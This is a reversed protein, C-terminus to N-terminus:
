LSAGEYLKIENVVKGNELKYFRQNTTPSTLPGFEEKWSGIKVWDLNKLVQFNLESLSDAGSYLCSVFGQSHVIDLFPLLKTGLWDGGLFVVCEVKNLYNSLLESFSACDFVHSDKKVGKWSCGKCARPCGDIFLTLNLYHPHERFSVCVDFISLEAM